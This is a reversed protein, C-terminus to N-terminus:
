SNRRINRIDLDTLFQALPSVRKQAEKLKDKEVKGLDLKDIATVIARTQIHRVKAWGLAGLVCSSLITVTPWVWFPVRYTQAVLGIVSLQSRTELVLMRTEKALEKMEAVLEPLGESTEAIRVVIPLAAAAVADAKMTAGRLDKYLGCGILSLIPLLLSAHVLPTFVSKGM